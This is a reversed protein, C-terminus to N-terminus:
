YEIYLFPIWFTAKALDYKIDELNTEKLIDHFRKNAEWTILYKKRFYMLTSRKIDMSESIFVPLAKDIINIYLKVELPLDRFDLNFGEERHKKYYWDFFGGHEEIVKKISEIDM